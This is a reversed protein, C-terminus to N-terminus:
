LTDEDGVTDVEDLYQSEGPLGMNALLDALPDPNIAAFVLNKQDAPLSKIRTDCAHVYKKVDEFTANNILPEVASYGDLGAPSAASLRAAATNVDDAAILSSIAANQEPTFRTGSQMIAVMVTELGQLSTTKIFNTVTKWNPTSM